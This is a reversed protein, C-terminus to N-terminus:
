GKVTEATHRKNRHTWTGFEDRFFVYDGSFRKDNAVSGPNALATATYDCFYSARVPFVYTKKNAPTGDARPKGVRPAAIKASTLKLTATEIVNGNAAKTPGCYAAKLLKAITAKTPPKPKTAKAEAIVPAAVITAALALTTLRAPLRVAKCLM